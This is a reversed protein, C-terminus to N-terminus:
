ARFLRRESIKHLQAWHELQPAAYAPIEGTTLTGAVRGVMAEVQEGAARAWIAGLVPDFPELKLAAAIASQVDEFGILRATQEADLGAEAALVGVIV